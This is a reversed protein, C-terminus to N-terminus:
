GYRSFIIGVKRNRKMLYFYLPIIGNYIGIFCNINKENRIQDIEKFYKKQFRYNKIFRYIQKVFGPHNITYVKSKNANANKSTAPATKLGIPILNQAPYDPYIEFIKYYLDWTIIFYFKGSYNHSLYEFLQTFRKEAGGFIGGTLLVFAYNSM